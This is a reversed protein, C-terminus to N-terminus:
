RANQEAIIREVREEVNEMNFENHFNHNGISLEQIGERIALQYPAIDGKPAYFHKAGEPFMKRTPDWGKCAAEVAEMCEPVTELDEMTVESFDAFQTGQSVVSYISETNFESLGSYFRNLIVAAVAVKGEFIEGRCEVYLVKAMIVKDEYSIVYYYDESPGFASIEPSVIVVTEETLEQIEKPEPMADAMVLPFVNRKERKEMHTNEIESDDADDSNEDESNINTTTPVVVEIDDNNFSFIFYIVLILSLILLTIGAGLLILLEIKKKKLAKQRKVTKRNKRHLCEEYKSCNRCDEGYQSSFELEKPCNRFLKKTTAEM